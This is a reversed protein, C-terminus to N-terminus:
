LKLGPLKKGLNKLFGRNKKLSRMMKSVKDFNADLERVEDPKLGAGKAVREQRRKEHMLSPDSRERKTMSLVASEFLKM